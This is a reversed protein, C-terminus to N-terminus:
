CHDQAYHTLLVDAGFDGEPDRQVSHIHNAQRQTNDYEILLRPGQIRYYHPRGAELRGAWAFHLGNLRDGRYKRAEQSALEDPLRDFYAHLLARLLRREGGTLEAAAIGKPTRTLRLDELHEPRLGVQAEGTQQMQEVQLGLDGEFRGRWVDSLRQPLDGESVRPRNGGVLDIPAAESLVAVRRRDPDLAKVLKRAVAEGAALPRLFRGGPLPSSAPDAGFFCPTWAAVAGNVVLHQLSIHHGGFRWSWPQPGGPPGFITVYYLGPDRGRERGWSVGWGELEDLVNELGIITCATVYGARSLGSALLRMALQQQAPRMSALPLGGHDTPTYFWRTREQDAPFPQHAIAAQEPSLSALLAHAADAM